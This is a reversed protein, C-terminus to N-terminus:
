NKKQDKLGNINSGVGILAVPNDNEDKIVSTSLHISFETGDKKRNIIEGKWGGKLTEQLINNKDLQPFHPRVISINKGILEEKSYGYTQIFAKNVFLINDNMDTITICESVSEVAQAMMKIKEGSQIVDTIDLAFAIIGAIKRDSDIWPIKDTRAWKVKNGTTVSEIIGIKPKGSNIVELDDAYYKDSEVPFIDKTPKGEINEVKCNAINAAAQNVRIFNNKTDKFWISAPSADIITRLQQKESILQHELKKRETIDRIISKFYKKNKLEILHSNVEVMVFAGDKKRHKTEFILPNGLKIIDRRYEIDYKTDPARLDYVSLKLMENRSYGYFNIALKNADIIKMETDFLIIIDNSYKILYDLYILIDHKQNAADIKTTRSKLKYIQFFLSLIILVLIIIIITEM